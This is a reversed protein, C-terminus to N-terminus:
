GSNSDGCCSYMFQIGEDCGGCGCGCVCWYFYIFLCTSFSTIQQRREFEFITSQSFGISKCFMVVVCWEKMNFVLWYEAFRIHIREGGPEDRVRGVAM